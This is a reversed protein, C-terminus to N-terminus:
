SKNHEKIALLGEKVKSVAEGVDTFIYNFEKFTYYNVEITENKFITIRIEDRSGYENYYFYTKGTRVFGLNSFIYDTASILM